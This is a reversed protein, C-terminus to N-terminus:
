LKEKYIRCDTKLHFLFGGTSTIWRLICHKRTVEKQVLLDCQEVAARLASVM